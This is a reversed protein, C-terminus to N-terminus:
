VGDRVRLAPRSEGHSRRFCDRVARELTEAARMTKTVLVEVIAAQVSASLGRVGQMDELLASNDRRFYRVSTKLGSFSFDDDSDRM